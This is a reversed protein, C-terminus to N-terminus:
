KSYDTGQAARLVGDDLYLLQSDNRGRRYVWQESVGATTTTRNVRDPPGWARTVEAATMGLLVQRRTVALAVRARWADDATPPPPVSIARGGACPTQQYVAGDCRYLTQGAAHGAVAALLILAYRM